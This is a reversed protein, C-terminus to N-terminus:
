VSWSAPFFSKYRNPLDNVTNYRIFRHHTSYNSLYMPFTTSLELGSASELMSNTVIRRFFYVGSPIHYGDNRRSVFLYAGTQITTLFSVQLDSMGASPWITSHNVFRNMDLSYFPGDGVGSGDLMPFSFPKTDDGLYSESGNNNPQFVIENPANLNNPIILKGMILNQGSIIGYRTSCLACFYFKMGPLIKSLDFNYKLIVGDKTRLSSNDDYADFDISPFTNNSFKIKELDNIRQDLSLRDIDQNM